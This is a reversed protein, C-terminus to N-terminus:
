FPAPGVGVSLQSELFACTFAKFALLPAVAWAWHRASEPQLEDWLLWRGWGGGPPGSAVSCTGTVRVGETDPPCSVSCACSCPLGQKGSHLGWSGQLEGLGQM